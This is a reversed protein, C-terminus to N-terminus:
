KKTNKFIIIRPHDYVTFSEDSFDDLFTLPIGLYQLSPYSMIDQIKMYQTKGAFLDNYFASMRPYKDPVTQISGWARNSSLIYYDARNLQRELEQWKSPTDQDFVHLEEITFQKTQNPISLPLADDWYESLIISNTPLNNYIWESATVRSHPHLYISFFSLPWLLVFFLLITRFLNRKNQTFWSFGIGAFVAFFPYLIIFYRMNKTFRTSQYLFFGSVWFLIILFIFPKKKFLSRVGIIVFLFYPLGLGFFIINMLAFIIPPKNIWQISPPFWTDYGEWSQLLQLNEFFKPHILPNFFSNSAFIYPDAMRLTFYTTLGFTSFVAFAYFFLHLTRKNKVSINYMYIGYVIVLGLLPAAYLATIKASFALGYFIGSLFLSAFSRTYLFKLIFYFSIIVFTNLFTDSAYFHSLQIPLVAITYFFMAYFKVSKALHEKEEFLKVTKYVMFIALLDFTASLFRGLITFSSYTDAHLWFALLKGITLPLMGYVFFDYGNNAPNLPSTETTLYTILSHPLQIKNVVMTLFREDPHLHHGQDWDLNFYRLFCALILISFFLIKEVIRKQFLIKQFKNEM